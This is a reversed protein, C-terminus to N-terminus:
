YTVRTEMHFFDLDTSNVEVSVPSFLWICNLKQNNEDTQFECIDLRHGIMIVDLNTLGTRKM